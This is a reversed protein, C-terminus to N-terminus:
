SRLWMTPLMPQPTCSIAKNYRDLSSKEWQSLPMPDTVCGLGEQYREIFRNTVFGESNTKTFEGRCSKTDASTSSQDSQEICATLSTLAILSVYWKM